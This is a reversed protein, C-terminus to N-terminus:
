KPTPKSLEQRNYVKSILKDFEIFRHHRSFNKWCRIAKRNM